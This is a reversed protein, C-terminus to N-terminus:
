LTKGSLWPPHFGRFVRFVRFAMKTDKTTGVRRHEAPKKAGKADERHFFRWLYNDWM